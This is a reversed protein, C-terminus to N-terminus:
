VGHDEVEHLRGTPLKTVLSLSVSLSHARACAHVLNGRRVWEPHVEMVFSGTRNEVGLIMHLLDILGRKFCKVGKIWSRSVRV